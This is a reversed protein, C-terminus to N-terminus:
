KVNNNKKLINKIYNLDTISKAKKIKKNKEISNLKMKINKMGDILIENCKRDKSKEKKINVNQENQKNVYFPSSYTKNEDYIEYYPKNKNSKEKGLSNTSNSNKLMDKSSRKNPCLYQNIVGINLSSLSKANIIINKVKRVPNDDMYRHQPDANTIIYNRKKNINTNTQTHTNIQNVIIKPHTVKNTNISLTSKTNSKNFYSDYNKNETTNTVYKKYNNNDLDKKIKTKNKINKFTKSQNKKINNINKMLKTQKFRHFSTISNSSNINNNSLIDISKSITTTINDNTLKRENKIVGNYTKKNFNNITENFKENHNLSNKNEIINQTKNVNTCNNITNKPTNKELEKEKSIKSYSLIEKIAKKLFSKANDFINRTEQFQTINYLQKNQLAFLDQFLRIQFKLLSYISFLIKRHNNNKISANLELEIEEILQSILSICFTYQKKYIFESKNNQIDM